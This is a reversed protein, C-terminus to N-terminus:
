CSLLFLWHFLERLVDVHYEGLDNIGILFSFCVKYSFIM